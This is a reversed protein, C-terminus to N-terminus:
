AGATRREENVTLPSDLPGSAAAVSSHRVILRAELRVVRPHPEGGISALLLRTAAQGIEYAPVHVTTLSPRLYSAMPVDDFGVVSVDEPARLGLDAVAALVGIAMRDNLAFIADPRADSRTDDQLLARAERYGSEPGFDGYRLWEPVPELGAAQLADRYGRVRDRVSTLHAPGALCAIRRRGCGILHAVAEHAARRNDIRVSPFPLQHRGIVVVPTDVRELERLQAQPQTGGGAFILGDVRKQRLVRIAAAVREPERDTNTLVVTYGRQRATDEVGRVLEPYYPNTIDPIVLGMTRTVRQVLSRAPDSPQYDLERAAALVRERTAERVPHASGNLVRSVTAISM